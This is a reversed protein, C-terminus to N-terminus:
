RGPPACSLGAVRGRARWCNVAWPAKRLSINLGSIYVRHSNKVLNNTNKFPDRWFWIFQTTYKPATLSGVRASGVGVGREM